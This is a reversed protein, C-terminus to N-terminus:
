ENKVINYYIAEEKLEYYIRKDQPKRNKYWEILDNIAVYFGSNILKGIKNIIMLEEVTVISSNQIEKLKDKLLIYKCKNIGLNKGEMAIEFSEKYKNNKNLDNNYLYIALQGYCELNGLEIGEQYLKIIEDSDIDILGKEGLYGKIYKATGGMMEKVFKKM